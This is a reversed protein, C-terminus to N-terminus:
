NLSSFNLNDCQDAMIKGVSGFHENLCDAKEKDDTLENGEKDVICNISTKQKRKYNTIENVLQWTKSKDSGYLKAKDAYYKIEAKKKLNTLLNLHTTYKM